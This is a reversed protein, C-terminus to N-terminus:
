CTARAAGAMEGVELKLNEPLNMQREEAVGLFAGHKSCPHRFGSVVGRGRGVGRGAGAPKVEV